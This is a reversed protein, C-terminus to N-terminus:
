VLPIVEEAFRQMREITESATAAQFILSVHQAGAQELARLDEAMDASSGKFMRAEGERASSWEVSTLYALAVEITAPDRGAAESVRHLEGIMARLQPATGLPREPNNSAPYWGDAARVTRRLAVASEGGIWIPIGAPQAGKPMFSIGSFRVHKGSFGPADKTWLERFADLWEDTVAGRAAFPPSALAEFEEPMWGVGCGAIIRGNSLLDATSLMKATLVAPRYPLIM